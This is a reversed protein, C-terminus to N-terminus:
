YNALGALTALNNFQAQRRGAELQYATVQSNYADRQASAGSNYGALAEDFGQQHEGFQRNYDLLYQQLSDDYSTKWEGFSRQYLKDFEQSALNDAFSAVDQLTGGTLLTGKAAASREIAKQGQEQRFQYAPDTQLDAVTPAKFEAPAKWAGPSQFPAFNFSGINLSGTFPEMTFAGPNIGSLAGANKGGTGTPGDYPVGRADYDMRMEMYATDTRFKPDDGYYYGEWHQYEAESPVKGYKAYVKALSQRAQNSAGATGSQGGGGTGWTDGTETRPNQTTGPVSGQDTNNMGANWDAFTTGTGLTGAQPTASLTRQVGPGVGM